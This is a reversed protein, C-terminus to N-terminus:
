PLVEECGNAFRAPGTSLACSFRALIRSANNAIEQLATREVVSLSRGHEWFTRGGGDRSLIAGRSASIVPRGRYSLAYAVSVDDGHSRCLYGERFRGCDGNTDFEVWLTSSKSIRALAVAPHEAHTTSEVLSVVIPPLYLRRASQLGAVFELMDSTMARLPMRLIDSSLFQNM